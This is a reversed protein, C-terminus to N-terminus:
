SLNGKGLSSRGLVERGRETWFENGIGENFTEKAFPFSNMSQLQNSRHKFGKMSVLQHQSMPYVVTGRM